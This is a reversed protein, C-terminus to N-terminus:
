READGPRRTEADGRSGAERYGPEIRFVQVRRNYTDCVYLEDTDSIFAGAPLWFEGFDRGRQGLTLLFDGHRNFLQVNDFLGDVVYVIGDRDVAVGKPLALDGSGDGHHGFAGVPKGQEDFIEVRFNLANTIYLEGALSRGIHTPFNFRGESDGREGFSFALDGNTKFAHVKSALTDVVYLLQTRPSYTVGTPRLLKAAGAKSLTLLLAGDDGFAFLRGASDAVYLRLEDDFVVGVPSALAERESGNLRLYRQQAPLYLHVCRRGLDAVAIRGDKGTAVAVPLVFANREEDEDGFVIARMVSGTDTKRGLGTLSHLYTLKAPNPQYPWQLAIDPQTAKLTWRSACAPTFLVLVLLLAAWRRILVKPAGSTNALVNRTPLAWGVLTLDSEYPPSQGM